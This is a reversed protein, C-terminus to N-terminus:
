RNTIGNPAAAKFARKAARAAENERKLFEEMKPDTPTPLTSVIADEQSYVTSCSGIEPTGEEEVSFLFTCRENTYPRSPIKGTEAKTLARTKQLSVRANGFETKNPPPRVGGPSESHRKRAPPTDERSARSRSTPLHNASTM